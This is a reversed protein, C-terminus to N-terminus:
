ANRREKAAENQRSGDPSPEDLLSGRITRSFGRFEAIVEGHAGTVTVDTIGQRGERYRERAEAVLREGLTATRLYAIQCQSAV